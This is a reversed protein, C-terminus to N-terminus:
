PADPPIDPELSRQEYDLVKRQKAGPQPPGVVGDDELVDILKAARTYGIRLRRQLLSISAKGLERVVAVADDYMDDRDEERAVQDMDEWSASQSPLEESDSENEESARAEGSALTMFDVQASKWFRVLRGLEAESMFAGQMRLPQAADPALFLMDGRGLLREGGTQDLIVRSDTSSAVAFSIRAPFNAKILGTVVDVSPRQTAIILHIGTARALQALRTVIRETEDPAIMMLDALEDVVVVINPMHREDADSRKNFGAIDRAGIKAFKDYRNDMERAIWQLGPVVRELDVIVPAMLHPVSNYNTLEVRKPDILLLKLQEPTNHLLLTSIISNICVSKGSGTTGAILLHPMAVMDACVARGTVDQGLALTLPSKIKAFAKTEIVDRLAVQVSNANPVEIGVFGRGPAPAEIRISPAAIALALDNALASIKNVRVKTRKENRGMVYDPEVGFQTVVPGRNVEVVRAPAGFSELTEEILNARQRDYEDDATMESGVDLINSIAPLEWTSNSDSNEASGSKETRDARQSTTTPQSIPPPAAESNSYDLESGSQQKDATGREVQAVLDATDRGKHLGAADSRVRNAVRQWGGGLGSLLERTSIGLTLLLSILLGAALAVGAGALGLGHVLGQMLFGGIYGGGRGMSVLVQVARDSSPFHFYHLTTLGALYLLTAGILKDAGIRPLQSSFHRLIIWIGLALMVCPVLFQGWGFLFELLQLFREIFASQRPSFMALLLLMGALALLVGTVDLKQDRSLGKPPRSRKRRAAVRKTKAKERTRITNSQPRSRMKTM